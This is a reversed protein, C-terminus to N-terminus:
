KSNAEKVERETQSIIIPALYRLDTPLRVSLQLLNSDEGFLIAVGNIPDGNKLLRSQTGLGETNAPTLFEVVEKSRYVLKDNPYPGRPFDAAPEIGESIVSEVFDMHAPFVRAIVTAVDFRGSTSGNMMSMQISPGAIGKWNRAFLESVGIPNPSVYFTAGNSGYTNFCYWGRPALVGFGDESAKYYALLGADKASIDVAQDKGRPADVPGSQGDSKCGVFPVTSAPANSTAHGQASVHQPASIAWAILVVAFSLMSVKLAVRM